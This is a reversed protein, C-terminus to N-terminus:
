RTLKELLRLFREVVQPANEYCETADAHHVILIGHNQFLLDRAHDQTARQPPHFPEGDVELIGWKGNHCVLFDAERNLRQDQLGLRALCNPLFLVGVADLAAAVRVEAESRFRLNKWIRPAPASAAQNHITTRELLALAEKRWGEDVTIRAAGIFLDNIVYTHPLVASIVERIRSYHEDTSLFDYSSRPAQIVVNVTFYVDNRSWEEMEINCSLLSAAFETENGETLFHIASAIVQEVDIMEYMGVGWKSELHSLALALNNTMSWPAYDSNRAVSALNRASLGRTPMSDTPQRCM